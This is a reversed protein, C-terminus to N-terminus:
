DGAGKTELHYKIEKEAGHGSKGTARGANSCTFNQQIELREQSAAAPMVQLVGAGKGEWVTPCTLGLFVPCRPLGELLLLAESGSLHRGWLCCSSGVQTGKGAAGVARKGGPRIAAWAACSQGLGWYRAPELPPCAPPWTDSHSELADILRERLTQVDAGAVAFSSM